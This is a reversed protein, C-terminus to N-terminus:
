LQNKDKVLNHIMKKQKEKKNALMEKKHTLCKVQLVLREVNLTLDLVLMLDVVLHINVMLKEVFILGLDKQNHHVKQNKENARQLVGTVILRGCRRSTTLM